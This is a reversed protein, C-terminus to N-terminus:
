EYQKRPELGICLPKNPHDPGLLDKHQLRGLQSANLKIKLGPQRDGDVLNRNTLDSVAKCDAACGRFGQLIPKKKQLFM